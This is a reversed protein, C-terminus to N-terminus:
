LDQLDKKIQQLSQYVFFNLSNALKRIQFCDLEKVEFVYNTLLAVLDSVQGIKDRIELISVQQKKCKEYENNMEEQGTMEWDEDEDEVERSLQGNTYKVPKM